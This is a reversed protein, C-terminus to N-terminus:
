FCYISKQLFQVKLRVQNKAVAIKKDDRCIRDICSSEPSTSFKLQESLKKCQHFQTRSICDSIRLVGNANGKLCKMWKEIGSYFSEDQLFVKNCPSTEYENHVCKILLEHTKWNFTFTPNHGDM